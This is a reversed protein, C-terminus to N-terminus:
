SCLSAPDSRPWREAGSPSVVYIADDQDSPSVYIEISGHRYGTSRADRPLTAQLVLADRYAGRVVGLPDRIYLRAQAFTTARTGPPWGITLFAASQWGCHDPGAATVLEESSVQRGDRSWAYGPYRPAPDFATAVSALPSSARVDFVNVRWGLGLLAAIAFLLALARPILRGRRHISLIEGM